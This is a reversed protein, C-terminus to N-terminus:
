APRPGPSRGPRRTSRGHAKGASWASQTERAEAPRLQDLAQRLAAITNENQDILSRGSKTQLKLEHRLATFEEVLDILGFERAPEGCESEPATAVTDLADAQASRM